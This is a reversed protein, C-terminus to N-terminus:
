AGFRIREAFAGTILAVTIVAFACQYMAFAVHPIAANTAADPGVGRFGLFDLGGLLGSQDTGFSLTYGVLVWQLSVLCLIFFSHMCTSLVNRRGVLGGYFLALGPVTMLLVLATSVLVWATDGSNVANTM